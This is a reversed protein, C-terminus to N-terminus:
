QPILEFVTFAFAIASLSVALAVTYLARRLGKVDLALDHVDGSLNAVREILVAPQMAELDDVRRELTGVRYLITSAPEDTM